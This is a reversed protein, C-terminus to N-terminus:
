QALGKVIFGIIGGVIAGICLYVRAIFVLDGKDFKNM